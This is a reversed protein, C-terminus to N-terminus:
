RWGGAEDDGPEGGREAGDGEIVAEQEREDREHEGAEDGEVRGLGVASGLVGFWGARRTVCPSRTPRMAPKSPAPPPKRMTGARMRTAASGMWDAVAVLRARMAMLEREPKRTEAADEESGMRQGTRRAMVASAVTPLRPPRARAGLSGLSDRFCMKVATTRMVAATVRM